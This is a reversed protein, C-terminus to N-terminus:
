LGWEGIWTDSLTKSYGLFASTPDHEGFARSATPKDANAYCYECGHPCTDYTGIDISESCGCEPRTGKANHTFGEPKCLREILAGDICHAKAIRDGLLDDGCCAHMTIGHEAAVAALQNALAIRDEPGPDVVRTGVTRDLALFNRRVKGYLTVFSFYCRRVLGELEAAMKRFSALYFESAHVNSIIIPDFRWNIHEPSYQRSLHKLTKLASAKDVNSELATPLCTLTYNFCFRYGLRDLTDLHGLFPTLDKSWFVLCAVDHPTLSVRSRQGGYPNVVQASGEALRRRFWPGYFAPIDSRYSASIIM